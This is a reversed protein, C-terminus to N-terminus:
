PSIPFRRRSYNERGAAVPATNETEIPKVRQLPYLPHDPHDLAAYPANVGKVCFAGESHTHESNGRIKVVRGDRVSILSGCKVLCEWCASRLVRETM